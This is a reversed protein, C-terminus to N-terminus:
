LKLEKYGEEKIHVLNTVWVEVFDLDGKNEDDVIMYRYDDERLGNIGETCEVCLDGVACSHKYATAVALNLVDQEDWGKVDVYYGKPIYTM